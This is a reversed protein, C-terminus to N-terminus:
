ACWMSRPTSGAPAFAYEWTFGPWMTTNRGSADLYWSRCRGANWVSTALRREMEAAFEACVSAKPEIAAAGSDRMWRVADVIFNLQAEIMYLLSTHGIGTNPGAILFLNPFGSITIGLHTQPGSSWHDALCRSDRGFVRQVIPHNTVAFGTAMVITDVPYRAGDDTVIAGSELVRVGGTILKVNPRQLRITYDDSLLIRKCGIEFSPTLKARLAPDAM